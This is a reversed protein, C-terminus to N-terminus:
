KDTHRRRMRWVILGVACLGFGFLALTMPEPSSPGCYEAAVSMRAWPPPSPCVPIAGIGITFGYINEFTPNTWSLMWFEGPVVVVGNGEMGWVRTGTSVLTSGGYETSPGNAEVIPTRPWFEFSAPEYPNGLSWIAFYVGAVQTSFKITNKTGRGGFLVVMGDEPAPTGGFGIDFTSAPTWSPYGFVLGEVEGTYTLKVGEASATAKGNTAGPTFTSDWHVWGPYASAPMTLQAAMAALLIAIRINM